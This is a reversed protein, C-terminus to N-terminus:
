FHHCYCVIRLDASPPNNGHSVRFFLHEPASSHILPFAARLGDTLIAFSPSDVLVVKALPLLDYGTSIGLSALITPCAWPRPSSRSLRLRFIDFECRNRQDFLSQFNDGILDLEGVITNAQNFDDRGTTLDLCVPVLQILLRAVRHSYGV